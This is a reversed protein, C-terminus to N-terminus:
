RLRLSSGSRPGAPRRRKRRRHLGWPSPRRRPIASLPAQRGQRRSRRWVPAVVPSPAAPALGQRRLGQQPATSSLTVESERTVSGSRDVVELRFDLSEAQSQYYVHGAKLQEMDLTVTRPQQGPETTILRGERAQLVPASKPNWRITILGKGQPEVRMELDGAPTQERSPRWRDLTLWAAIGGVIILAGLALAAAMWRGRQKRLALEVAPLTDELAPGSEGARQRVARSGALAARVQDSAALLPLTTEVEAAARTPGRAAVTESRLPVAPSDANLEGAPTTKEPLQHTAPESLTRTSESRSLVARIRDSQASM